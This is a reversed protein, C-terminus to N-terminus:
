TNWGKARVIVQAPFNDDLFQRVFAYDTGQKLVSVLVVFLLRYGDGVFIPRVWLPSSQRPQIGGLAPHPQTKQMFGRIVTEASDATFASIQAIGDQTASPFKAPGKTSGVLSVKQSEALARAAVIGGEATRRAYEEWGNLSTPMPPLLAPGSSKVIRMTGYGRRSRLGVGGFTLALRLAACAAQWITQDQSHSQWMRLEFRQGSNFAPRTGSNPKHPLIPKPSSKLEAGTPLLRINIPSGYDTSGFVASELKHLGELNRDGIVGGLAARLWYRMAGRFSPPRLEPLSGKEKPEAGGLFLPTVTELTVTLSLPQETM